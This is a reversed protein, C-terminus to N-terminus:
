RPKLKSRVNDGDTASLVNYDEHRQKEGLTILEKYKDMFPPISDALPIAYGGSLMAEQDTTPFVANAVLEKFRANIWEEKERLTLFM